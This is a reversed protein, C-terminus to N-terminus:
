HGLDASMHIRYNGLDPLFVLGSRRQSNRAGRAHVDNGFMPFLCGPSDGVDAM